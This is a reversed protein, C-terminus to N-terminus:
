TKPIEKRCCDRMCPPMYKQGRCAFYNIDVHFVTINMHSKNIDVHLM